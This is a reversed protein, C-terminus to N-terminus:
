DPYRRIFDEFRLRAALLGVLRRRVMYRGLGSLGSDADAAEAEARLRDLVTPDSGLDALGTRRKASALLSAPDLEVEMTLAAEYIQQQHTDRRPERLDDIDISRM